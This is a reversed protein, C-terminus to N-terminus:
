GAPAGRRLRPLWRPVQRRYTEYAGGFRHALAPEEVTVILVHVIVLFAVAYLAIGPSGLALAEGALIMVVGTLMPNRALAYPGSTVLHVPPQIPAPTGGGRRVFVVVCSLALAAGVLVLGIGAGRALAPPAVPAFWRYALYPLVAGILGLFLAALVVTKVRLSM